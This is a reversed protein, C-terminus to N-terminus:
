RPTRPGMMAMVIIAGPRVEGLVTRVITGASPQFADGSPVGDV